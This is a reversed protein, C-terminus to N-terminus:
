LVCLNYIGKLGIVPINKAVFAGAIKQFHEYLITSRSFTKYYVQQLNTKVTEPIQSSNSFLPLKTYLLPGIGRDIITHIFYDWDQIQLILCNIQELEDQNPCLKISSLILRDEVSLSLM